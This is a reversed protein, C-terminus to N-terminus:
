LAGSYRKAVPPSCSSSPDNEDPFDIIIHNKEVKKAILHFPTSQFASLYGRKKLWYRAVGICPVTNQSLAPTVPELM